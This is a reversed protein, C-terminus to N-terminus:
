ADTKKTALASTQPYVVSPGCVIQPTPTSADECLNGDTLIYSQTWESGQQLRCM